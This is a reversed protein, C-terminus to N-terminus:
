GKFKVDQWTGTEASQMALEMLYVQFHGDTFTAAAGSTGGDIWDIFSKFVEFQGHTNYLSPDVLIVEDEDNYKKLIIKDEERERWLLGKRTGSIEVWMDSGIHGASTQCFTFVGQAGNTFRMMLTGYDENEIKIWEGSPKKRMPILTQKEYFVSRPTLGTVFLSMDILHSGIDALARSVEGNAPDVRWNWTQPFLLWDQLYNGRILLIDGLEGSEIMSKIQQVAPFGRRNYNVVNPVHKKKLSDVMARTEQTSRGLPKEAYIPKGLKLCEMNVDFHLHNPTNNIVIDIAPSNVLENWSQFPKTDYLDAYVTSSHASSGAVGALQHGSKLVIDIYRQGIIGMGILGIRYM